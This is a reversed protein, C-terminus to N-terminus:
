PGEGAPASATPSGGRPKGLWPWRLRGPVRCRPRRAPTGRVHGPSRPTLPADARTTDPRMLHPQGGAKHPPEGRETRGPNPGRSTRAPRRGRPDRRGVGPPRPAGGAPARPHEATSAIRRAAAVPLRSSADAAASSAQLELHGGVPPETATTIAVPGPELCLAHEGFVGSPPIPMETTIRPCTARAATIRQQLFLTTVGVVLGLWRLWWVVLQTVTM